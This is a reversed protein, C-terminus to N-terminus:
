LEGAFAKHLVAQDLAAAEQHIQEQLKRIECLREFAEHIKAVTRRQEQLSPVPIKHLEIFTAPVRQQGASGRFYRRAEERFSHQRVFCWLWQPLVNPGPRLVHFETSGFGLGNVLGQAIASKGNQMCPTIKAFIVDGEVFPTFGKRVTALPRVEPAAITGTVEDVAAMPVFTVRLDDRLSRLRSDRRPNVQAVDSLRAMPWSM